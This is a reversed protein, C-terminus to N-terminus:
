SPRRPVTQLNLQLHGAIFKHFANRRQHSFFLGAPFIKCSKHTEGAHIEDMVDNSFKNISWFLACMKLSHFISSNANLFISSYQCFQPRCWVLLFTQHFFNQHTVLFKRWQRTNLTFTDIYDNKQFMAPILIAIPLCKRCARGNTHM